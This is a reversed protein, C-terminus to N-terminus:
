RHSQIAHELLDLSPIYETAPFKRIAEIGGWRFAQGGVWLDMNPYDGRVAEICRKLNGMNSLISLSLGVLNPKEEDISKV